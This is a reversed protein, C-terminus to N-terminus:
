DASSFHLPTSFYHGFYCIWAFVKGRKKKQQLQSLYTRLKLRSSENVSVKTRFCSSFSVICFSACSSFVSTIKKLCKRHCKPNFVYKNMIYILRDRTTLSGSLKYLWMLWKNMTMWRWTQMYWIIKKQAQQMDAMFPDRQLLQVCISSACTHASGNNLKAIPATTLHQHDLHTSNHSM